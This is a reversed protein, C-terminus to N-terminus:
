GIHAFGEWGHALDTSTAAGWEHAGAVINDTHAIGWQEGAAFVPDASAVFDGGGVVGVHAFAPTAAGALVLAGAVTLVAKGLKSKM